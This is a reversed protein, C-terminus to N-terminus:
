AGLLRTDTCDVLLSAIFISRKGDSLIILAKM